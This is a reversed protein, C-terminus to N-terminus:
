GLAQVADAGLVRQLTLAEELAVDFGLTAAMM